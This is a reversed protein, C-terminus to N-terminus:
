DSGSREPYVLARLPPRAALEVFDPDNRAAVRNGPRLEIARQLHVYAGQLDGRLGRCLALAYHFYDVDERAGVAAQLEREARDLERRNILAVALNYHDEPTAPEAANKARAM